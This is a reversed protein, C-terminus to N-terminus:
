VITPLLLDDATASRAIAIQARNFSRIINDLQGLCVLGNEYMSNLSQNARSLSTLGLVAGVGLEISLLSLILILRARVSLNNFM